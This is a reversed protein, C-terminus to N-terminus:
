VSLKNTYVLKDGASFKVPISHDNLFTTFGNSESIISFGLKKLKTATEPDSTMIFNKNM